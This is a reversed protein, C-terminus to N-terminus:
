DYLVTIGKQEYQMVYYKFAFRDLITGGCGTYYMRYKGDTSRFVFPHAVEHREKLNNPDPKIVPGTIKWNLSDESIARFIKDKIPLNNSGRFYMTWIGDIRIVSPNNVVFRCGEMGYDLRIGPEVIWKMGDKSVASCINQKYVSDRYVSFFMRLSGDPLEIISTDSVGNANGARSKVVMEPSICWKSEITWNERNHSVASYIRTIGDSAKASFYLRWFGPFQKLFPARIQELGIGAQDSSLMLDIMSDWRLGDPSVRRVIRSNWTDGTQSAAHHFMEYQGNLDDPQHVFCYFSADAPNKRNKELRVGRDRIWTVGDQSHASFTRDSPIFLPRLWDRMLSM